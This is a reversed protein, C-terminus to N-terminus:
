LWVALVAAKTGRGGGGETLQQECGAGVREGSIRAHEFTKREGFGKRLVWCNAPRRRLRPHYSRLTGAEM